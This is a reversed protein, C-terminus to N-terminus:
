KGDIPMDLYWQWEVVVCAARAQLHITNELLSIVPSQPCRFLIMRTKYGKDAVVVGIQDISREAVV